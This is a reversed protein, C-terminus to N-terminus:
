LPLEFLVGRVPFASVLTPLGARGDLSLIESPCTGDPNLSELVVLGGRGIRLRKFYCHGDSDVAIALRGDLRAADAGAVQDGAILHQGDLALPEASRGEVRFLRGGEVLGICGAAEAVPVAEDEGAAPVRRDGSFLVGVVKKRAFGQLPAIVPTAIAYPDVAQATLVAVDPNTDPVAIRRALTRGGVSAVVLNGPGVAATESAILFDGIGAIPEMTGAALRFVCHNGLRLPDGLEERVVIRGDGFPIRGDAAAAAAVGTGTMAARRLEERQPSPLPVVEAPPVYVRHDGTYARFERHSHLAALIAGKLNRRGEGDWFAKLRAATAVNADGPNHTADNLLRVYPDDRGLIAILEGFQPFTFPAIRERRLVEMTERLTKLNPSAMPPLYGQLVIKLVAECHGRLRGIFTAANEDSNARDTEEWYREVENGKTVMVHGGPVLGLVHGREARCQEVELMDFFQREHTTLLLQVSNRDDRGLRTLRSLEEAWSRKNRPDFTAQPDDLLMLPFPNFGLAEVTEERLAFIFGWLIARLWSTNAVLGADIRMDPANRFGAHVDVERTTREKRLRAGEYTLRERHHIRDLIGRIRGSLADISRATEADVLDKLSALPELADAITNRVRQVELIAAWDEAKKAATELCAALKGYPEAKGNAAKLGALKGSLSDAPVNGDEGAVGVVSDWFGRFAGGNDAWWNALAVLRRLEAIDTRVKVAEPPGDGGVAAPETFEPLAAAEAAAKDAVAKGAGVLVDRFRGAEALGKTVAEVVATKPKMAALTPRSPRLVAPVLKGLRDSIGLCAADLRREAIEGVAKLTALEEATAREMDSLCVPCDAAGDERPEYWQAAVAKLRLRTDEQQRVHWLLAEELEREAAECGALIGDLRGAEREAVLADLTKVPALAALGADVARGIIAVAAAVAERGAEKSIDAAPGLDAVLTAMQAAAGAKAEEALRRLAAPLGAAELSKVDEVDVGVKAGHGAAKAMAEAFGAALGEVGKDKAYKLFKRGGHRLVAVGEGVASLHDLGTLMKVAEYLAASGSGFRLTGLRCPMLLGAEVLQPAALLRPDVDVEHVADGVRGPSVLRRWRVAAEGEENVFALRVWVEADEVLRDPADPYSVLPPWEGVKTTGDAGLVPERRGSDEVVGAHERIRHGTVGWLIASALSTKGSGNQGELTWGAEDAALVFEAGGFSNLGGFNFTRVERLLWRDRAEGAAAGAREAPDDDRGWAETLGAFLTEDGGAVADQPSRMLFDFLRRAGADALQIRGGRVQGHAPWELVDGRLLTDTAERLTVPM